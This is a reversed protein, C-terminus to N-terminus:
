EGETRDANKWQDEGGMVDDMEKPKIAKREYYRRDLVYQYPCSLCEFRNKGVHDQKQGPGYPVRSITLM